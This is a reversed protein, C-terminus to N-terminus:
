ERESDRLKVPAMKSGFGTRFIAFRLTKSTLSSAQSLLIRLKIPVNGVKLRVGIFAL